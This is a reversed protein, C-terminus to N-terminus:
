KQVGRKQNWHFYLMFLWLDIKIHHTDMLCSDDKYFPSKAYTIISEGYPAGEEANVYLKRIVIQIHKM